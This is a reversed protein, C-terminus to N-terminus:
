INESVLLFAAKLLGSRFRALNDGWLHSLINLFAKLYRLLSPNNSFWRTLCVSQCLCAAEM